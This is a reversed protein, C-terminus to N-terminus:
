SQLYAETVEKMKNTIIWLLSEKYIILDIAAIKTWVKQKKEGRLGKRSTMNNNGMMDNIFAQRLRLKLM